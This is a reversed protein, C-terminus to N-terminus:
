WWKESLVRHKELGLGNPSTLKGVFEDTMGPVGCVYVVSFRKDDGLAQDIDDVTIRRRKFTLDLGEITGNDGQKGDPGPTLYLKIEGKMKGNKGLIANLRNLFLIREPKREGDGPDRLSYFFSISLRPNPNEALHSLISILPNIGVGGAIFVVKRLTM